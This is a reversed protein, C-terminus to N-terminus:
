VNLDPGADGGKDKAANGEPQVQKRALTARRAREQPTPVTGTEVTNARSDNLGTASKAEVGRGARDYGSNAAEAERRQGVTATNPGATTPPRPNREAANDQRIHRWDQGGQQPAPRTPSVPGPGAPAPHDKVTRPPQQERRLGRQPQAPGDAQVRGTSLLSGPKAEEEIRAEIDALRTEIRELQSRKAIESEYAAQDAPVPKLGYPVREVSAFGRARREANEKPSVLQWAPVSERAPAPAAAVTQQKDVGRRVPHERETKNVRKLAGSEGQTEQTIREAALVDPHARPGWQAFMTPRVTETGLERASEPEAAPEGYEVMQAAHVANQPNFVLPRVPVARGQAKGEAVMKAAAESTNKGFEKVMAAVAEPQAAEFRNMGNVLGNVAVKQRVGENIGDDAMAVYAIRSRQACAAARDRSAGGGAGVDLKVDRLDWAALHGIVAKRLEAPGAKAALELDQFVLTSLSEQHSRADSVGRVSFMPSSASNLIGGTALSWQGGWSAVAAGGVGRGVVQQSPRITGGATEVFQALRLDDDGETYGAITRATATILKPDLKQSTWIKTLEDVTESLETTVVSEDRGERLAVYADEHVQLLSMAAAETSFPVDETGQLVASVQDLMARDERHATEEATEVAARNSGLPVKKNKEFNKARTFRLADNLKTNYDAMLDRFRPSLAWMVAMTSVADTLSSPDIGQALPKICNLAMLQTYQNHRASLIDAKEKPSRDANEGSFLRDSAARDKLGQVTAKRRAVAEAAVAKKSEATPPQTNPVPRGPIVDAFVTDGLDVGDINESESGSDIPAPQEQVAAAEARAKEIGRPQRKKVSPGTVPTEPPAQRRIPNQPGTPATM